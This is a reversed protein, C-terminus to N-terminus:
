HRHMTVATRDLAPEQLLQMMRSLFYCFSPIVRTLPSFDLLLKQKLLLHFHLTRLTSDFDGLKVPLAGCHLCHPHQKIIAALQRHYGVEQSRSRVNFWLEFISWSLPFTNRSELRGVSTASQQRPETLSTKQVM